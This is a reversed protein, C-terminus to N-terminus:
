RVYKAIEASRLFTTITAGRRQNSMEQLEESPVSFLESTYLFNKEVIYACKSRSFGAYNITKTDGDKDTFSLSKGKIVMKRKIKVFALNLKEVSKELEQVEDAMYMPGNELNASLYAHKKKLETLGEGYENIKKFLFEAAAESTAADLKEGTMKLKQELTILEAEVKNLEEISEDNIIQQSIERKLSEKVIHRYFDFAVAYPFTSEGPCCNKGYRLKNSCRLQPLATKNSSKQISMGAGCDGCRVLSHLEYHRKPCVHQSLKTQRLSQAKYFLKESIVPEFTKISEGDKTELYGIATKSKLWRMITSPQLKRLIPSEPYKDRLKNWITTQGDGQLYFDFVDRIIPAKKPDVKGDKDLWFVKKGKYPKGDKADQKRKAHSGKAFRSRTESESFAQQIEVLLCIRKEMNNASEPPFEKGDHVTVLTIGADWILFLLKETESISLRSLRSFREVLIYSGKEVKGLQIATVLKGLSGKKLHEGKFASFGEDVLVDKVEFDPNDLLWKQMESQRAISSGDKQTLSSFRQYLYACKKM